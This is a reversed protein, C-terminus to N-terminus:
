ATTAVKVDEQYDNDGLRAPGGRVLTRANPRGQIPEDQLLQVDHRQTM